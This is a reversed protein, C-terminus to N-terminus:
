PRLKGLAGGVLGGLLGDVLLLVTFALVILLVTPLGLGALEPSVPGLRGGLVLLPPENYLGMAAGLLATELGAVAGVIAAALAAHVLGGVFRRTAYAAVFGAVVGGGFLGMLPVMLSALNVVIGVIAAAVVIWKDIPGISVDRAEFGFSEYESM